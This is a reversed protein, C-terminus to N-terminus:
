ANALFALLARRAEPDQLLETGHESGATVVLEKDRSRTAGYLQGADRAFEVDQRGVLFLVPIELQRVAGLADLGSFERPASLAAVEAVDINAAAALAATGGMSAGVLIIRQAGRALLEHAGAVMDDDLSTSVFNIALVRMDSRALQKAFPVWSCLDSGFQHGLVVGVEGEGALAADVETGARDQAYGSARRRRRVAGGGHNTNSRLDFDDTGGRRRRRRRLQRGRHSAGAHIRPRDAHLGSM